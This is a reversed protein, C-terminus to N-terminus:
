AINIVQPFIHLTGKNPELLLSHFIEFGLEVKRESERENEM